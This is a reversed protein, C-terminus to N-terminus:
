THSKKTQRHHDCWVQSFLVRMWFPFITGKRSGEAAAWKNQFGGGRRGKLHFWIFSNSRPLHLSKQPHNKIIVRGLTRKSSYKSDAWELTEKYDSIFCRSWAEMFVCMVDILPYRWPCAEQEVDAVKNRVAGASYIIPLMAMSKWQGGLICLNACPRSGKRILRM